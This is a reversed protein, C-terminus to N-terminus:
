FFNKTEIRIILFYNNIKKYFIIGIFKNYSEGYFGYKFSKFIKTFALLSKHCDQYDIINPKEIDLYTTILFSITDKKILFGKLNSFDVEINTDEFFLVSKKVDLYDIKVNDFYKKLINKAETEALNYLELSGTSLLYEKTFKKKINEKLEM